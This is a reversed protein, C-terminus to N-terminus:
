LAKKTAQGSNNLPFLTNSTSSTNVVPTVADSHELFSLSAPASDTCKSTRAAAFYLPQTYLKIGKVSLKKTLLIAQKLIDLLKEGKLSLISRQIVNGDNCSM